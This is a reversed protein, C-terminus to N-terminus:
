RRVERMKSQDGDNWWKVWCTFDNSLYKLQKSCYKNTFFPEHQDSGETIIQAAPVLRMRQLVWNAIQLRLLIRVFRMKLTPDEVPLGVLLDDSLNLFPSILASLCTHVVHWGIGLHEVSECVGQSCPHSFTLKLSSRPLTCSIRSLSLTRPICGHTRIYVPSRIDVNEERRFGNTQPTYLSRIMIPAHVLLVDYALSFPPIYHLWSLFVITFPVFCLFHDTSYLVFM